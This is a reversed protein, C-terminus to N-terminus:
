RIVPAVARPPLPCGRGGGGGFRQLVVPAASLDVVIEAREAPGLVLRTLRVPVNLLGGDSAVQDFGSNGTFGFTYIQQDSANLLRLRLRSQDTALVPTLAGNVLTRGGGFVYEQFILPVDDVGYAHPLAVQAPNDDDLIFMSALGRSVQARTQGMLHSHYWLTAAQQRITWQPLWM